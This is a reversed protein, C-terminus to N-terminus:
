SSRMTLLTAFRRTEFFPGSTRDLLAAGVALFALTRMDKDMM